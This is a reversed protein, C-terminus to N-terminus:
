YGSSFFVFTIGETAALSLPLPWVPNLGPTTPSYYPILNSLLLRQSAIGSLTFAEYAFNLKYRVTDQTRRSM